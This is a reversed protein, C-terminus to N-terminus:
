GAGRIRLAREPDFVKVEGTADDDTLRPPRLIVWDLGSREVEAEMAAKDKNAGRLVTSVFLRSAISTNPTSDGEGLMSTVILRRVGHRTMSAIITSAAVQELTTDKYPAKGGITDLVADQGAVAADMAEPDTADGEVVRVGEVDYGDAHHVFATVAHGAALAQEVVARGTKGAAGVVLINM